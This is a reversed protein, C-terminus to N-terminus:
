PLLDAPRRIMEIHVHNGADQTFGALEQEVVASFDRVRGIVTEGAVVQDGVVPRVVGDSAELHNVRLVSGTASGPEIIVEFGQRSGAVVYDTVGVVAGDVPAFVTTGAPAGVDLGATAPGIRGARDAQEHDVDDAPEIPIGAASNVPHYLIATVKDPDVPLHIEVGESEAIVLEPPQQGGGLAPSAVPSALGPSEDSGLLTVAVAILGVAILPLSATILIRRRRAAQRRRRMARRAAIQEQSVQAVEDTLTGADGRTVIRATM